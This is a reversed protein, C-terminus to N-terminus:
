CLLLEPASFLLTQQIFTLFIQKDISNLLAM